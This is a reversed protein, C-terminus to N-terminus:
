RKEIYCGSTFVELFHEEMSHVMSDAGGKDSVGQGLLGHIECNM